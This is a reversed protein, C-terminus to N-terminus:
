ATPVHAYFINKGRRDPAAPFRQWVLGPVVLFYKQLSVCTAIGSLTQCSVRSIGAGGFEFVRDWRKSDQVCFYDCSRFFMSPDNNMTFRLLSGRNWTMTRFLIEVSFRTSFMRPSLHSSM